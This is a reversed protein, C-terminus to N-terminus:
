KRLLASIILVMVLGLPIKKLEEIALKVATTDNQINSIFTKFGAEGYKEKFAQANQNVQDIYFNQYSQIADVSVYTLLLYLVLAFVGMMLLVTLFGGSLGEWFHMLGANARFRYYVICFGITFLYVFFELSKPFPAFPNKFLLYSLYFFLSLILGGLLGSLTSIKLLKPNM